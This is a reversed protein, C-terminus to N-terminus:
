VEWRHTSVTDREGFRRFYLTVGLPLHDTAWRHPAQIRLKGSEPSKACTVPNLFNFNEILHFSSEGVVGVKRMHQGNVIFQIKRAIQPLRKCEGVVCVWSLGLNVIPGDLMHEGAHTALGKQRAEALLRTPKMVIDCILSDPNAESLDLPLPDDHNLGLATANIAIDADGVRVSDVRRAMDPYHANISRVLEEAKDPSRNVIDLRRVGADALAFAIAMGGGGAGVLLVKRGEVDHGGNRLGALFGIGDCLEGELTGDEHRRVANVAGIREAQPRLCDCLDAASIKHPIAITMGFVNSMTRILSFADALRAAPVQAPVMVADIGRKLLLGNMLSPIRLHLVPDALALILGTTGSITM